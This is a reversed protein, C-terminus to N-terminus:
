DLVTPLIKSDRLAESAGTKYSKAFQVYALHRSQRLEDIAAESQVKWRSTELFRLAVDLDHVIGLSEQWGELVGLEAPKKDAIELLYRLKKAEKRLAHLEDVKKEDKLVRGLLEQIARSRSRVRRGLKRSLRKGNIMSPAVSPPVAGGFVKMATVAGKIANMRRKDISELLNSPLGAKRSRLMKALTDFDRLRTTSKFLSKAGLDYKSFSRSRRVQGPLLRCMMQIRRITVRLDHVSEPSMRDPLDKALKALSRTYRKYRKGFSKPSARIGAM